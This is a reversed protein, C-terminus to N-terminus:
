RLQRGKRVPEIKRDRNILVHDPILKKLEYIETKLNKIELELRDNEVKVDYLKRRASVPVPKESLEKELFKIRTKLTINEEITELIKQRQEEIYLDIAQSAEYNDVETM